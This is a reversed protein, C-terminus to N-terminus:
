YEMETTTANGCALLEPSGAAWRADCHVPGPILNSIAWLDTPHGSALDGKSEVQFDNAMNPADCPATNDGSLTVGAFQYYEATQALQIAQPLTRNADDWLTTYCGNEAMFQEQEVKITMLLTKAEIQKGRYIYNSYLPIAIAALIAIISVTVMLEILTFGIQNTLRNKM